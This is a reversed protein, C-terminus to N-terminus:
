AARDYAARAEAPTALTWGSDAAYDLLRQWREAMAPIAASYSHFLAHTVAPRDDGAATRLSDLIRKQNDLDSVEVHMYNRARENGEGDVGIPIEFLRTNALYHGARPAAPWFAQNVPDAHGPASSLDIDFGEEVLVDALVASFGFEGSRYSTTHLGASALDARRARISARMFDADSYRAEGAARDAHIHVSVEAGGAVATRYAELLEGRYLADECLYGAYPTIAYRGGAHDVMLRHTAAFESACRAVIAADAYRERVEPALIGPWVVDILPVLISQM